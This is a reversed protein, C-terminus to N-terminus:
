SGAPFLNSRDGTTRTCHSSTMQQCHTGLFSGSTGTFKKKSRTNLLEDEDEDEEEEEEDPKVVVKPEEEVEEIEEEEQRQEFLTKFKKAKKYNEFTEKATEAIQIGM